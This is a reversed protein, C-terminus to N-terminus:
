DMVILERGVVELMLQMKDFTECDLIGEGDKLDYEINGLNNIVSDLIALEYENLRLRYSIKDMENAVEEIDDKNYKGDDWSDIILNCIKELDNFFTRSEIGEPLKKSCGVIMSVCLILVVVGIFRRKNM